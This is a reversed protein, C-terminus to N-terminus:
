GPLWALWLRFGGLSGPWRAVVAVVGAALDVSKKQAVLRRLGDALRIREGHHRARDRIVSGHARFRWAVTSLSLVVM